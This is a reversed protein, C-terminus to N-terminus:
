TDTSLWMMAIVDGTRVTPQRMGPPPNPPAAAMCAQQMNTFHERYAPMDAEPTGPPPMLGRTWVTAMIDCYGGVQTSLAPFRGGSGAQSHCDGCKGSVTNASTNQSWFTGSPVIPQVFNNPKIDIGQNTLNLPTGLQINFVNEGVHCNTCPGGDANLLAAGGNFRSLPTATNITAIDFQRGGAGSNDWFCARSTENGQCIIGLLKVVGASNRRPLAFCVGAPSTNPVFFFVDTTPLGTNILSSALPGNWVWDPSGWDPPIPVGANRCETIYAAGSNTTPIAKAVAQPFSIALAIGLPALWTSAFTKTNM